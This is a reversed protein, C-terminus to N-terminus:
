GEESGQGGMREAFTHRGTTYAQSVPENRKRESQRGATRVTGDSQGNSSLRHKGNKKVLRTGM